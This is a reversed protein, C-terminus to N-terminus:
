GHDWFWTKLLGSFTGNPTSIRGAKKCADVVHRDVKMLYWKNSIWGILYTCFASLVNSGPTCLSFLSLEMNKTVIQRTEIAELDNMSVSRFWRGNSVEKRTTSVFVSQLVDLSALLVMFLDDPSYNEDLFDAIDEEKEQYVHDVLWKLTGLIALPKAAFVRKPALRRKGEKGTM